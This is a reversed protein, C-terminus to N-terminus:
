SPQRPVSLGIEDWDKTTLFDAAVPVIYREEVSMHGIATSAFRDVPQPNRDVHLRLYPRHRVGFLLQARPSQVLPM